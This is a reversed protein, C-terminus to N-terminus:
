SPNTTTNLQGQAAWLNEKTVIEVPLTRRQFMPLGSRNGRAAEALIRVTHFGCGFQDQVITAFVHDNEIGALTDAHNDFGVVKVKGLQGTQQLAKLVAPTSYANLGVICKVNPNAKVAATVMEVAKNADNGDILTATVTYHPGKLPASDAPDMEQDPNFPRDLLEDIVGQRRRQANEKDLNAISLIVEGGDPVAERVKQACLRGAAYNDTGVFCLRASQPSDSDMTVLTHQGAVEALVAAQAMPDIPSVAIGDFKQDVLSRIMQTQSEVDPKARHVTLKVDYQDAAEQAGKIILDWYPQDSTVIVVRPEPRLAGATWLIAGAAIILVLFFLWHFKPAPRAPTAAADRAAADGPPTPGSSASLPADTTTSMLSGGMPRVDTAHTAAPFSHTARARPLDDGHTDSLRVRAMRVRRRPTVLCFRPSDCPCTRGRRRTRWM